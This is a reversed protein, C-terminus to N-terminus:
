VTMDAVAQSLTAPLDFFNVPGVVTPISFGAFSPTNFRLGSARLNLQEVTESLSGNVNPLLASRAVRSQGHAQRVGNAVGVAGLNYQLGREVADRLSLKGSLPTKGETSGAYPGQVQVTPNITNVSTTTGPVPSEAATVSGSQGTRGSLPVQNARTQQGQGAPPGFQGFSNAAIVFIAGAACVWNTM